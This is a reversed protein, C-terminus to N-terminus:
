LVYRQQLSFSNLLESEEMGHFFSKIMFKISDLNQLLMMQDLSNPYYTSVLM